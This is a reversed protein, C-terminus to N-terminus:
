QWGLYQCLMALKEMEGKLVAMIRKEM